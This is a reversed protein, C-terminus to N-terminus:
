ETARLRIALDGRLLEEVLQLWELIENGFVDLLPALLSVLPVLALSPVVLSLGGLTQPSL